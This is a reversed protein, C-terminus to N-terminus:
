WPKPGDIKAREKWEADGRKSGQVDEQVHMLITRRQVVFLGFPRTARGGGDAGLTQFWRQRFRVRLSSHLDEVSVLDVGASNTTEGPFFALVMCREFDVEPVGAENYYDSHRDAAIGRHELWLKTWAEATEIRLYRSEKIASDSGRFVVFPTLAMPPKAAPEEGGAALALLLTSLATIRM